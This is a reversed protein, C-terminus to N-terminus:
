KQVPTQQVGPNVNVPSKVAAQTQNGTAVQASAQQTTGSATAATQASANPTSTQSASGNTANAVQAVKNQVGAANANAGAQTGTGNATQASNQVALGHAKAVKEVQARAAEQVSNSQQMQNAARKLAVNANIVSDAQSVRNQSAANLISKQVTTIFNNIHIKYSMPVQEVDYVIHCLSIDKRGELFEASAIKGPIGLSENTDSFEIKLVISKELLFKPIGVLMVKAGGFSLDKLVCRRPVQEVLIVSEEKDIGLKQISKSNIDIREERRIKFNECAEVFEGIRSILDDPPRQTFLLTVLALEDTNQYRAVEGINCNVFFHIPANNQDLFCYRLSLSNDKKKTIEQFAGSATGIIIKAMQLSSSNIICPWQGGNCKIYIQRPDIKLSKLNAKTFVIEKDRFYDYYRSIQHSTSINM